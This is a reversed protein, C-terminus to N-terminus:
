YYRRAGSEANISHIQSADNINVAPADNMEEFIASPSILWRKLPEDIMLFATETIEKEKKCYNATSFSVSAADESAKPEFGDGRFAM